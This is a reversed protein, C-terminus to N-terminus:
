SHLVRSLTFFVMGIGMLLSLLSLIFWICLGAWRCRFTNIQVLKPNSPDYLVPIQTGVSYFPPYSGASLECTVHQGALLGDERQFQVVPYYIPNSRTGGGRKRKLRVRVNLDIIAGQASCARRGFRLARRVLIIGVLFLFCTFILFCIAVGAFLITRM